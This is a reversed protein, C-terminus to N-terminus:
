MLVSESSRKCTNIARQMDDPLVYLEQSIDRTLIM